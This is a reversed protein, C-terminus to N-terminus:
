GNNREKLKAEIAQWCDELDELGDVTEEFEAQTLGVWEKSPAPLNVRAFRVGALFAAYNDSQEAAAEVDIAKVVSPSIFDTPQACVELGYGNKGKLQEEVDLLIARLLGTMTKDDHNILSQVLMPVIDDREKATFGVWERDRARIFSARYDYLQHTIQNIEAYLKEMECLLCKGEFDEYGHLHDKHCVVTIKKM